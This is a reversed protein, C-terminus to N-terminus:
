GRGARFGPIGLGMGSASVVALGKADALSPGMHCTSSMPLIFKSSLSHITCGRRCGRVTGGAGGEGDSGRGEELCQRVDPPPVVGERGSSRLVFDAERGGCSHCFGYESNEIVEWSPLKPCTM